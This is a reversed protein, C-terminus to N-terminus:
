RKCSRVSRLPAPAQRYENPPNTLMTLTKGDIIMRVNHEDGILEALM